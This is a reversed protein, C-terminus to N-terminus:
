EKNEPALPSPAVLQRDPSTGDGRSRPHRFRDLDIRPRWTVKRLVIGIGLTCLGLVFLYASQGVGFGSAWTDWRLVFLLSAALISLELGGAFDVRGRLRLLPVLLLGIALVLPAVVAVAQWGLFLGVAAMMLPIGVRRSADQTEARPVFLTLLWGLTTGAAIGMIATLFISVREADALQEIQWPSWRVPFLEPWVLPAFFGVGYALVALTHPMRQRDWAILSWCMLLCFLFCHFAYLGLLEFRLEFLARAYDLRTPEVGPLNGGGSLVELQLLLLFITGMTAEVIPYRASIPLRCTRCKGGLMVWGLVPINDAAKIKTSCWPCRSPRTVM